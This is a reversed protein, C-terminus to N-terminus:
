GWTAAPPHGARYGDFGDVRSALFADDVLGEEVIASGGLIDNRAHRRAALM